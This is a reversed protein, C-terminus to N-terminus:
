TELKITFKYFTYEAKTEKLVSIIKHPSPLMINNM